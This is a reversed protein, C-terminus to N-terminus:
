LTSYPVRMKAYNNALSMGDRGSCNEFKMSHLISIKTLEKTSETYAYKGIQESNLEDGVSEKILNTKNIMIGGFLSPQYVKKQNLGRLGLEHEIAAESTIKPDNKLDNVLNQMEEEHDKQKKIDQIAAKKVNDKIMETLDTTDMKDMTKSIKDQVDKSNVDFTVDDPNVDPKAINIGTEFFFDKVIKDVSESMIKAVPNGKKKAESVYYELGQPAKADMFNHMDVKLNEENADKYDDDMPLADKYINQFIVDLCVNKADHKKEELRCRKATPTNYMEEKRKKKNIKKKIEDMFNIMNDERQDISDKM